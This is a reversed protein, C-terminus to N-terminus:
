APPSANGDDDIESFKRAVPSPSTLGAQAGGDIGVQWWCSLEFVYIVGEEVLRETSAM